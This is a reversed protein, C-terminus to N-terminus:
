QYGMELNPGPSLPRERGRGMGWKGWGLLVVAVVRVLADGVAEGGLVLV